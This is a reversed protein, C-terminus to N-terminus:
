RGLFYPIFNMIIEQTHFSKFTFNVPQMKGDQETKTALGFLIITHLLVCYGEHYLSFKELM